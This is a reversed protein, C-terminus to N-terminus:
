FVTCFVVVTERFRGLLGSKEPRFVTQNWEQDCGQVGTSPLSASGAATWPLGCSQLPRLSPQLNTNWSWGDRRLHSSAVGRAPGRQRQDGQKSWTVKCVQSLGVQSTPFCHVHFPSAISDWKQVLEAVYIGKQLCQYAAMSHATCSASFSNLLTYWCFM